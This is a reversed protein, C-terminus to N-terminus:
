GRFMCLFVTSKTSPTAHERTMFAAAIRDYQTVNRSVSTVKVIGGVSCHDRVLLGSLTLSTDAKSVPSIRLYTVSLALSRQSPPLSSQM